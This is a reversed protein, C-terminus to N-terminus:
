GNQNGQLELMLKARQGDSDRDYLGSKAAYIGTGLLITSLPHKKALKAASVAAKGGSAAMHGLGKLADVSGGSLKELGALNM